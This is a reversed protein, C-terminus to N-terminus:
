EALYANSFAADADIPESLLGNAVMWDVFTRWVTPNQVGWRPADAQYHDSLWAQSARVLQADSEPSHKILIDAAEVPHEIAYSYGRETAALFRSVLESREALTSEGAIIVPTYYDPVCDGYLPVTNLEVGMLEAQVGDWGQYIWILDARGAVLAPFTDYGVDVFELQDIDAGECQMLGQLLPREIPLGFSAYTKGEFDAASEIGASALSAIAMFGAIVTAVIAVVGLGLAFGLGKGFGRGFGSPQKPPAPAYGPRSAPAYPAPGQPQQPGAVPPAPESVPSFSQDQHEPNDSM